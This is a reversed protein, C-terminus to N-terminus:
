LGPTVEMLSRQRIALARAAVAVVMTIATLIVGLIAAEQPRSGIMFQFIDISLVRSAPTYIFLIVLLARTASLFALLWANLLTPILLPIVVRRMTRVWCGGLGRAAAEWDSSLQVMGGNM